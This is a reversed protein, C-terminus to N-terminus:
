CVPFRQKLVRLLLLKYQFCYLGWKGDSVRQGKKRISKNGTAMSFPVRSSKDGPIHPPIFVFFSPNERWVQSLSVDAM